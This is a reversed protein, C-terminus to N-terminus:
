LTSDFMLGSIFLLLFFAWSRIYTEKNHLVLSYYNFQLCHLQEVPFFSSTNYVKHKHLRNFPFCLGGYRWAKELFLSWHQSYSRYTPCWTPPSLTKCLAHKYTNLDLFNHINRCHCETFLQPCRLCHSCVIWIQSGLHGITSELIM